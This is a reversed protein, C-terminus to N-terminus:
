IDMFGTTFTQEEMEEQIKKLQPKFKSLKLIEKIAQYKYEKKL